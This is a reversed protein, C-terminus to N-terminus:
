FTETKKKSKKSKKDSKAALLSEIKQRLGAVKLNLELSSQLGQLTAKWKLQM